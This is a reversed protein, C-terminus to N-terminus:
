LKLLAQILNLNMSGLLFLLFFHKSFTRRTKILIFHAIQVKIRSKITKVADPKIGSFDLDITFVHAVMGLTSGM